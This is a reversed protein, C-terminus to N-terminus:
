NRTNVYCECLCARPNTARVYIQALINYPAAHYVRIRMQIHKRNPQQQNKKRNRKNM